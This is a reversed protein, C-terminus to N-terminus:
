RRCAFVINEADFIVRDFGTKLAKMTVLNSGTFTKKDLDFTLEVKYHIVDFDHSREVQTPRSYIDIQALLNCSLGLMLIIANIVKRM